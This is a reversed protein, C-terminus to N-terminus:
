VEAQARIPVHLQHRKSELQPNLPQDLEGPITKRGQRRSAEEEEGLAGFNAVAALKEMQWGALPLLLLATHDLQSFVAAM